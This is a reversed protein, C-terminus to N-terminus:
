IKGKCVGFVNGEGGLCIFIDLEGGQFIGLTMVGFGEAGGDVDAMCNGVVGITRDGCEVMVMEGAGGNFCVIGFGKDLEISGSGDETKIRCFGDFSTATVVGCGGDGFCCCLDVAKAGGGEGRTTGEVEVVVTAIEDGAGSFRINGVGGYKMADIDDGGVFDVKVDGVCGPDWNDRVEYGEVRGYKVECLM